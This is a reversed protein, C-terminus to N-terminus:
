AVQCSASNFPRDANDSSDSSSRGEPRNESDRQGTLSSKGIKLTVRQEKSTTSSYHAHLFAVDRDSTAVVRRQGPGFIQCDCPVASSIAQRFKQHAQDRRRIPNGVSTAPSLWGTRRGGSFPNLRLLWFGGVWKKARLRAWGLGPFSSSTPILIVDRCPM